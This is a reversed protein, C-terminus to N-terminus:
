RLGNQNRREVFHFAALVVAHYWQRILLYNRMLEM